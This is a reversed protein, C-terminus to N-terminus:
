LMAIYHGLETHTGQTDAQEPGPLWTADNWLTRPGCPDPFTVQGEPFTFLLSPPPQHLGAPALTAPVAAFACEYSTSTYLSLSLLVQSCAVLRLPSAENSGLSFCEMMRVQVWTGVLHNTCTLLFGGSSLVKPQTVQGLQCSSDLRPTARASIAAALLPTTM